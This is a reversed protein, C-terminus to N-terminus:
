PAVPLPVGSESSRKGLGLLRLALVPIALISAFVGATALSVGVWQLASLGFLDGLDSEAVGAAPVCLLLASVVLLTSRGRRQVLAALVAGPLTAIVFLAMIMATGGLSFSSEHGAALTALRMMLRAVAGLVVGVMVAVLVARAVKRAVAM